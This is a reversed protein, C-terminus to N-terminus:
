KSMVESSYLKKVDVKQSRIQKGDVSFKTKQQRSFPTSGDHTLHSLALAPSGFMDKKVYTMAAHLKYDRVTIHDAVVVSGDKSAIGVGVHTFRSDQIKLDSGEGASVAKDHILTATFDRIMVQTGSFDVADGGVREVQSSIIQGSSFDSDFADSRADSIVSDQIVFESKVINLADEAMAGRIQTNHIHVPAKYFTVGGSLSLLGDQLASVDSVVVHRLVSKGRAELVYIGKWTEELPEFAIPADARGEAVLRGKVVLYADPAFRLTTGPKVILMGDVVLPKEVRWQGPEIVFGMDEQKVFFPLGIDEGSALPNFLDKFMTPTNKTERLHGDYSTTVTFRGDQLGKQGTEYALLGDNKTYPPIIAQESVELPKGDYLISELRVPVDLLNFLLLRGDDYHRVHVHDFLEGAQQSTLSALEESEEPCKIVPTVRARAKEINKLVSTIDTPFDNPFFSHYHDYIDPLRDAARLVEDLNEEFHEKGQESNLVSRYFKGVTDIGCLFSRMNEENEIPKLIGQDTSIPEVKLTYPNFYYRTNGAGLGHYENWIFATLFIRTFSDIDLIDFEEHMRLKRAVYSYHSRALPQSLYKGDQYVSAFLSIDSLRYRKYASTAKSSYHWKDENTLKLIISERASQKELLEKSMHEEINMIGWNQGNVFVRIYNHRASFGGSGRIFSQFIQDYPYQRSEPKHLSFRKFGVITNKGKLSVRLSMRKISRWHDALDGKLRLKAKHIIGKHRIKAKVVRPDILFSAKLAQRRDALLMQYDEFKIDIDIRDIPSRSPFGTVKSRIIDPARRLARDTALSILSVFVGDPMQSMEHLTVGLLGGTPTTFGWDQALITDIVGHIEEKLLAKNFSVAFVVCLTLLGILLPVHVKATKVIMANAEYFADGIPRLRLSRVHSMRPSM